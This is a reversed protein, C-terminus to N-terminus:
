LEFNISILVKPFVISFFINKQTHQMLRRLVMLFLENFESSRCWWFSWLNWLNFSANHSTVLHWYNKPVKLNVCDFCFYKFFFCVFFNFANTSDYQKQPQKHLFANKLIIVSHIVMQIRLALLICVFCAMNMASGQKERWAFIQLRTYIRRRGPM